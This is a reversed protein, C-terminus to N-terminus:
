AAMRKQSSSSTRASRRYVCTLFSLAPHSPSGVERGEEVAKQCTEICKDYDGQEFHAAALNTLFTMDKPWIDWAKQFHEIAKPFDRAKYADAGLKKEAEAEKRAKAEEEDEDAMAVDEEPQPPPTAPKPPTSSSAAPQPPPSTASASASTSFGEPMDNSGEERSFGQMDVGMLVGLVDILRPDQLAGSALAPNQQLQQLKQM